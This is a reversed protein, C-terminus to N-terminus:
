AGPAPVGAMMAITNIMADADAMGKGAIEMASGHGVSSLIVGAGITVASARHPALLKVPIHGQDHFIAVYLDHERAALLVDGGTPGDLELGEDRLRQAAPVTIDEDEHGFLGGEGAHPNIGFMAVRPKEIGLRRLARVGARTAAEVLQPSLRDLATRVSEHLTAHVIRMGGGVLMLFVTDDPVGCVKAVLSPYGSFRIGARQIATEHHPAAVVADFDGALAGKIAATASEVASRGADASIQGPQYAGEPLDPTASFNVHDLRADNGLLQATALVVQLPGFLTLSLDDRDAYAAAARLAVEPGIGNPDGLTVAIRAPRSM